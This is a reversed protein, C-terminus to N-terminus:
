VAKTPSQRRGTDQSSGADSWLAVLRRLERRDVKHFSTEPLVDVVLVDEPLEHHALSEGGFSRLDALSPAHDPDRAVIVAVGVEGMVAHSRPVIALARVDPHSSLASEVVAPSVNYGGRIYVDDSRGVLTLYGEPDRRGLDGTRIWGEHVRAATLEPQRWYGSMACPSRLWVEGVEGPDVIEGAPDRITLEVGPRACGVTDTRDGIGTIDHRTGIGGSETSSYRVSYVADMARRSAAILGPPSAAGGAVIMSVSSLDRSALSDDGLLLALQPAIVGLTSIRHREVLDMVSDPRWRDLVHVTTGLRLYTALKTSFGIHAFQTSAIMPESASRGWTNGSDIACIARLQRDTFWAGKPAGTTGSTFVIAVPRDLDEDTGPVQGGAVRLRDVDDSTAIVVDAGSADVLSSVQSTPLRPNIGAVAAGVKVAACYAALYATGSGLTLACV